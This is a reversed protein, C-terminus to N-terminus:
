PSTPTQRTQQPPNQPAPQAAQRRAPAFDPAARQARGRWRRRAMRGARDLRPAAPLRRFGPAGAGRGRPRPPRPPHPPAPPPPHPPQPPHIPPPHPPCDDFGPAELAQSWLVIRGSETNLPHAGPDARFSQLCTFHPRTPVEAAGEAWFAAFDPMQQQFRRAVDERTAEYLHRLWDMEARGESFAAEVGLRQAIARFIDYDSRAQGLPEIAKQMAILHSSRRNGAIDNREISTTAPLVIDVRRATATWMPEQVIITEPRAWARRLRNLDQHHHFPNGGAWYVLRTDPYRLVKGEYTFSDGPHLLLDAIRAVPIFPANPKRLAPLAPSKAMAIPAGVGGLSGYGYGIGGGPLGIQGLTAALALGAWFPQEGHDARQLSWSVCLMSRSRPLQRALARIRPADIGTIGAAWDADKRVGDKAGRLYRLFGDAGSCCRALFDADHAGAAVVEGALALMLATDTNPRVPWWQAPVWEPLDDRLPSILVIPVKREVLQRLHSELTHRAIGGAESQATRPSLAGFIVLTETHEAVTDLTSSEGRCVEANGLVHRLIVTGAALSYTEAHGTYGGVLDLMRKLQAPAHYFGGSSAWRYSGAFISANGHTSRVREIEDAVLQLADDWSVPVFAEKGPARANPGRQARWSARLWRRASRPPPRPTPALLRSADAARHPARFRGMDGGLPHDAFPRPRRRIGRRGPHARGQGAIHLRGLSQLPVRPAGCGGPRQCGARAPPCRPNRRRRVVSRCAASAPRAGRRLAAARRRCAGLVHRCCPRGPNCLSPPHAM